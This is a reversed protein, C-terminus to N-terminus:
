GVNPNDAAPYEFNLVLHKSAFTAIRFPNILRTLYVGGSPITTRCDAHAEAEAEVSRPGVEAGARQLVSPHVRHRFSTCPPPLPCPRASLSTQVKSPMNTVEQPLTPLDAFLRTSILQHGSRWWRSCGYSFRFRYQVAKCQLSETQWRINPSSILDRCRTEGTEDGEVVDQLDLNSTSGVRNSGRTGVFFIRDSGNGVTEPNLPAAAM